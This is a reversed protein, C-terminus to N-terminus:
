NNRKKYLRAISDYNVFKVLNAIPEYISAKIMSEFQRVRVKDAVIFFKARFDQLEYFKNLSNKFDTSHKVEFFSNPMNRENFWVVDITKVFKLIQPYAFDYIQSLNAVEGLKKDLIRNKDQPPIYTKFKRLNGIDAILGQFYAYSFDSQAINQKNKVGFEKLIEIKKESLGWFGPQIKFFEKNTQVILRITAYPTKTVWSI